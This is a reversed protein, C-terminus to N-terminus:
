VIRNRWKGAGRYAALNELFAAALREGYRPTHGAQHPTIVVNDLGWLPSEAPLPEREFVDLGAGLLAGETLAEVLAAEDVVSGRGVNVLWGKGIAALEDAGVLGETEAGGPLAVVVVDADECVERVSGLVADASGDYSSPDRKTGVVRMGFAKGLRAIAEGVAGLGLVGLTKGELESVPGQRWAGQTQHRVGRAVGRTLSLVLGFTHEAVPGANIGRPVTLAVGADVLRELPYQDVGVSVSQVWRLAPTLFDDRWHWTVLIPADALAVAVGDSTEPAVLDIGAIAEFARPVTGGEVPHLVVRESM